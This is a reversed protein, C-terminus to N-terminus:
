KRYIEHVRLSTIKGNNDRQVSLINFNVLFFSTSLRELFDQASERNVITRSDRGIADVQVHANAFHKKLMPAVMNIRTQAGLQIDILKLLDPLLYDQTSVIEHVENYGGTPENNGGTPQTSVPKDSLNIDYVPHMKNSSVNVTSEQVAHLIRGWDSVNQNVANEMVALLCYTFFGGIQMNCSSTEGAKSSTMIVNGYKNLFLKRYNGEKQSNITSNGKSIELKPAVFESTSNCCDTLVFRLRPNKRAIARDVGEVSIMRAQERLPLGLCMQPYPSTDNMSRVGHGSYYFFVVDDSQCQINKLVKKLNEPSCYSEPYIYYVFNMEDKLSSQAEVLMNSVNDMDLRTSKGINGDQTDAFIIAHFTSFTNSTQANALLYFFAMIGMAIFKTHKM